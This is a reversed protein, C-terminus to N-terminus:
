FRFGEVDHHLAGSLENLEETDAKCGDIADTLNQMSASTEQTSAANEESIAALSEVVSSIVDKQKELRKTQEAISDAVNSVDTVGDKLIEFSSLTQELKSRQEDAGETVQAMKSVSENSNEILERVIENISDASRASDDALARIEEAVVNFGRGLEGARAAEISANLSLLNTQSAIDQILDVAKQIKEASDNTSQTKESVIAIQESSIRNSEILDNLVRNVEAVKQNMESVTMELREISQANEEIVTGIASAQEGASSAENALATSGNAIEEVARNVNTVNQTIEAFRGTFDSNTNSIHKSQENIDSMIANMRERLDLVSNAIIGVEDTRSTEKESVTVSLDGDAMGRLVDALSKIGGAIRNGFIVSLVAGAVLLIVIFVGYLIYMSSFRSTISDEQVEMEADMDDTYNGTTIVWDWPAFMESYALKPAVTVGDAKTFYFESYGGGANAAKM